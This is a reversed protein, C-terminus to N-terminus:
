SRVFEQRQRCVHNLYVTEEGPTFARPARGTLARAIGIDSICALHQLMHSRTGM